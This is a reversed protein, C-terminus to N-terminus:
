EEIEVLVAQVLYRLSDIGKYCTSMTLIKDDENVEMSADVFSDMDRIAYISDLYQRFVTKDAFDFSQLLHRSDYLYAAFIRYHLIQDPLYVTVDRNEDFFSRDQYNHLTRFMSGNRMNHGYVVTNPDQFDKSNYDETFIAGEAGETLEATHTLYYANDGERQVVPYDVNTGPVVIWAYIDPNMEQLAAFDVPIEPPADEEANETGTGDAPETIEEAPEPEEEPVTEVTERLTEYERGADQEQRYHRNGVALCIVAAFGCIVAAYRYRGRM